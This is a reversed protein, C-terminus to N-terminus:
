RFLSAFINPPIRTARSPDVVTHVLRKVGGGYTFESTSTWRLNYSRAVSDAIEAMTAGSKVLPTSSNRFNYDLYAGTEEIYCVVHNVGPMRVSILRPTYGKERLVAAALTSFDDCDGSRTALFVEPRQVEKRFTFNFSRFYSAFGAPCLDESRRLDELTLGFSSVCFAFLYIVPLFRVYLSKPSPRLM